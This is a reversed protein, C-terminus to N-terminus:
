IGGNNLANELKAIIDEEALEKEVLKEELESIKRNKEKIENELRFVKEKLEEREKLLRDILFSLKNLSSGNNNESM